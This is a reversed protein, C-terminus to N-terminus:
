RDARKIAKAELWHWLFDRMAVSKSFSADKAMYVVVQAVKSWLTNELMPHLEETM